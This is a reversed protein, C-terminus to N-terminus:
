ATSLLSEAAELEKPSLMPPVDRDIVVSFGTAPSGSVPACLKGLSCGELQRRFYQTAALHSVM